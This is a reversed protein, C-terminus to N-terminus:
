SEMITLKSNKKRHFICKKLLNIYILIPLINANVIWYLYLHLVEVFLCMRLTSCIYRLEFIFVFCSMKLTLLNEIILKSRESPPHKTNQTNLTKLREFKNSHCTWWFWSLESELNSVHIEMVSLVAKDRTEHYSKDHKYAGRKSHKPETWNQGRELGSTVGKEFNISQQTTIVPLNYQIWLVDFKQTLFIM